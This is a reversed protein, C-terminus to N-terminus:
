SGRLEILLCLLLGAASGLLAGTLGGALGWGAWVGLMAGLATSALPRSWPAKIGASERVFAGCRRCEHQGFVDWEIETVGLLIGNGAYNPCCANNCEWVKCM